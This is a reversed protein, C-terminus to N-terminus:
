YIPAPPMAALKITTIDDILNQDHSEKTITINHRAGEFSTKNNTDINNSSSKEITPTKQGIASLAYEGLDKGTQVKSIANATGTIAGIPGGYLAGGIIGSIPHLSDDTVKRYVTGVVPLHHLPNIVDIVDNIQFAEQRTTHQEIKQPAYGILNKNFSATRGQAVQNLNDIIENQAGSRRNKWGQISQVPNKQRSATRPEEFSHYQHIEM